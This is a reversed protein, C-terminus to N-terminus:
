TKNRDIIHIVNYGLKVLTDAIFRRHCKFWLRESCMIAVFDKTEEIIEVLRRIGERYEKTEMYKEYGGSRYGGLLEGLWIYTIGKDKLIRELNEKDYYPFRTSKPFRRVDIIVRIHYKDLLDLFEKLSRNSHGITYVRKTTAM